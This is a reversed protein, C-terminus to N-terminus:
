DLQAAPVLHGININISVPHKSNLVPVQLHQHQFLELQFLEVSSVCDRGKCSLSPQHGSGDSGNGLDGRVVQGHGVQDLRVQPRVEVTGEGGELHGLQGVM